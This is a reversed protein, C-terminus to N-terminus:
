SVTYFTITTNTKAKELKQGGPAAESRYVSLKKIRTKHSQNQHFNDLVFTFMSDTSDNRYYFDTVKLIRFGISVNM